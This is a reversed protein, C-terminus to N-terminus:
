NFLRNSCNPCILDNQRLVYGCKPCTIPQEKGLPAGCALCNSGGVPNATSCYECTIRQLRSSLQHSAGISQATAELIHWVEDKLKLHEIDQAIDDLRHLLNFPNRFISIASIGLSAAVGLWSQEGVEISVSDELKTLTVTLATQGGSSVRQSTSIQVMKKFTNGYQQVRYNGRQFHSELARCFDDLSFFGHYIRRNM